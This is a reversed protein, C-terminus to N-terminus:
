TMLSLSGVFRLASITHGHRVFPRPFVVSVTVSIVELDLLLVLVSNPHHVHACAHAVCM